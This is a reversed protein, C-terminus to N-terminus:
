KVVGRQIIVDMIQKWWAIKAETMLNFARMIFIATIFLFTTIFAYKMLMKEM